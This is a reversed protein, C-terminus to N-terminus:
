VGLMNFFWASSETTEDQIRASDETVVLQRRPANSLHAVPLLTVNISVFFWVLFSGYEQTLLSLADECIMACPLSM